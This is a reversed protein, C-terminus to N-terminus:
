PASGSPSPPATAWASGSPTPSCCPPPTVHRARRECHRRRRSAPAQRLVVDAATPADDRCQQHHRQRRRKSPCAVRLEARVQAKHRHRRRLRAPKAARPSRHQAVRRPHAVRRIRGGDHLQSHGHVATVGNNSVLRYDNAAVSHRHEAAALTHQKPGERDPRVRQGGSGADERRDRRRQPHPPQQRPPPPSPEM